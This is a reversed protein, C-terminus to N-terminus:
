FKQWSREVRETCDVNYEVISAANKGALVQTVDDSPPFASLARLSTLVNKSFNQM